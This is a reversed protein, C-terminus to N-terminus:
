WHRSTTQNPSSRGLSPCCSKLPLTAWQVVLNTRTDNLGEMDSAHRKWYLVPVATVRRGFHRRHFLRSWVFGSKVMNCPMSREPIQCAFIYQTPSVQLVSIAPWRADPYGLPASANKPPLRTVQDFSALSKPIPPPHSLVATPTNRM